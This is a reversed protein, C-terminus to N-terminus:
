FDLWNVDDKLGLGWTYYFCDFCTASKWGEPMVGNVLKKFHIRRRPIILQIKEGEFIRRFYQTCIKAAPLIFIFPKGRSKAEELWEKTLAFPPNTLEIDYDMIERKFYDIDKHIITKNPFIEKLYEGSMGDGYASEYIINLSTKDLIPKLSEWATKPTMYHDHKKYKAKTEFVM